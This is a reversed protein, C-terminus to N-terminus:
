DEEEKFEELDGGLEVFEKLLEDITMKDNIYDTTAEESYKWIVGQENTLESMERILGEADYGKKYLEDENDFVQTNYYLQGTEGSRNQKTTMNDGKEIKIIGLYLM